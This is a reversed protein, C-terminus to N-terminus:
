YSTKKYLEFLEPFDSNPGYLVILSFELFGFQISLAVYNGDTDSKVRKIVFNTNKDFLIAVGRANSAKYSFFGRGDWEKLIEEEWEFVFHTDRLCYINADKKKM